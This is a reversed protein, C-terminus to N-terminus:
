RLLSFLCHLTLIVVCFIFYYRVSSEGKQLSRAMVTDIGTGSVVGLEGKRAVERALNYHSIRIGMGGQIITPVGVNYGSVQKYLLLCTALKLLNVSVKM